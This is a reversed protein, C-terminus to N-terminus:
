WNLNVEGPMGIKLSGDNKVLVKVAYVMNVREEKTQIIKPTFESKPSIWSVVGELKRKETVNKDILIEVKQGIKIKPLEAGSVYIRLIMESLDAIKYLPKGQVVIESREVFKNLVTGDIPNIIRCKGILDEVQAIQADLARVDGLITANQTEIAEINKEIVAIGGNIDDVQKQTAAKDAFMKDIRGKDKLAIAKQENLTNIQALVSRTRSSASLRRALAMDLQCRLQITDIIGITDGKKLIIGEDINYKLLKGTGEASVLIEVSEFNGYADSTKDNDTCSALM